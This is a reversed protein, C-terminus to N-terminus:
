GSELLNPVPSGPDPERASYSTKPWCAQHGDPRCRKDFEDADRDGGPIPPRDRTEPDSGPAASRRRGTPRRTRAGCPDRAPGPRGPHGAGRQRPGSRPQRHRGGLRHVVARVRRDPRAHPRPVQRVAHGDGRRGGAVAGAAAPLQPGPRPRAARDADLRAAARTRRCRHGQAAPRSLPTRGASNGVAQNRPQYVGSMDVRGTVPRTPKPPPPGGRRRAVGPEFPTEDARDGRTM